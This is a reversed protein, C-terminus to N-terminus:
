HRKGGDQHEVIAPPGSNSPHNVRDLVTFITGLLISNFILLWVLALITLTCGGNEGIESIQDILLLGDVNDAGGWWRFWSVIVGGVSAPYEAKIRWYPTGLWRIHSKLIDRSNMLLAFLIVLPLLLVGVTRGIFNAALELLLKGAHFIFKTGAILVVQAPMLALVFPTRVVSVLLTWM